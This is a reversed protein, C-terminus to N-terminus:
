FFVSKTLITGEVDLLSSQYDTHQNELSLYIIPRRAIDNITTAEQVSHITKENENRYPFNQFM